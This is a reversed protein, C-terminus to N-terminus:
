PTPEVINQNIFADLDARFYFTRGAFKVMRPGKGQSAWQNLTNKSIGLYAAANERTMRGDPLTKVAPKSANGIM